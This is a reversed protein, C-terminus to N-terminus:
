LFRQRRGGGPDGCLRADVPLAEVPKAGIADAPAREAGRQAAVIRRPELPEVAPEGGGDKGAIPEFERQPAARGALGGELDACGLPVGENEVIAKRLKRDSTRYGTWRRRHAASAGGARQRRHLWYM